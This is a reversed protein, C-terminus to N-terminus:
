GPKGDPFDLAIDQAKLWESKVAGMKNLVRLAARLRALAVMEDADLVTKKGRLKTRPMQVFETACLSRYEVLDTYKPEFSM